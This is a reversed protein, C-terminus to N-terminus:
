IAMLCQTAMPVKKRPFIFVFFLRMVISCPELFISIPAHETIDSEAIGHATAWWAGRDMSNELGLISFHTAIEEELPDEWGLSQVRTEQVPPCIRSWQAM